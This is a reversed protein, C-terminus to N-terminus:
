TLGDFNFLMEHPFLLLSLPSFPFLFFSSDSASRPHQIFNGATTVNLGGEEALLIGVYGGSSHIKYPNLVKQTEKDGQLYFLSERSARTEVYSLVHFNRAFNIYTKDFKDMLSNVNWEGVQLLWPGRM